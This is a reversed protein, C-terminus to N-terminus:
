FFFANLQLKLLFIMHKVALIKRKADNLKKYQYNRKLDIQRYLYVTVLLKYYLRSEYFM